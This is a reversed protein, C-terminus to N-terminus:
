DLLSEVIPMIDAPVAHAESSPEASSWQRQGWAIAEGYLTRADPAAVDTRLAIEYREGDHRVEPESEHESTEVDVPLHASRPAGYDDQWAYQSEFPVDIRVLLWTAQAAELAADVRQALEDIGLWPTHTHAM